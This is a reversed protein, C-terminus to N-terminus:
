IIQECHPIILYKKLFFHLLLAYLYQEKREHGVSSLFDYLNPIIHNSQVKMNKKRKKCQKTPVCSLCRCVSIRCAHIFDYVTLLLQVSNLLDFINLTNYWNHYSM